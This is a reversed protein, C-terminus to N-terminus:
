LLVVVYADADFVATRQVRPTLGTLAANCCASVVRQTNARMVRRSVKPQAKPPTRVAAPPVQGGPEFFLNDRLHFRVSKRKSSGLPSTQKRPLDPASAAVPQSTQRSAPSAAASSTGNMLAESGDPEVEPQQVGQATSPAPPATEPQKSNAGSTDHLSDDVLADGDAAAHPAQGLEPPPAHGNAEALKQQLKKMRKRKAKSVVVKGNAECTQTPRASISAEESEPASTLGHSTQDAEAPCLAPSAARQNDEFEASAAVTRVLPSKTAATDPLHAVKQRKRRAVLLGKSVSYLM